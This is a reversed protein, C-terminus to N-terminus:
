VEAGHQRAFFVWRQWFIDDAPLTGRLQETISNLQERNPRPDDLVRKAEEVTSEGERSRAQKLEFVDSTLWEDVRGLRLFDVPNFAVERSDSLQLHYVRDSEDSFLAELSLMVLPSHTTVMIQPEIEKSLISSVDLIAPLIVRQWQPHLHAEMEDILVVIRQEPQKRSLNAAIRHETWAWVLLYGLTAIRRVGASEHIFPVDGYSHKLVPIERADGPVRVPDGPTLHEAEPPSLRELVKTFLEFKAHDPHHQWNVWDRLLGEIKGPLGDLVDDRQFVLIRTDERAHKSQRMPDWVAFSGDVRAYVILGPITPRGKPFPWDQNEWNYRITKEEATGGARVINFKIAPESKAADPRPSAVSGSWHGTLSWWACDLLFSKGLGNDGTIISLREGPEYLLRRVPGIGAIELLRLTGGTEPTADPPPPAGVARLLNRGQCLYHAGIARSAEPPLGTDFLERQEEDSIHYDRFFASLVDAAATQPPWDTERYLWVALWFASVSYTQDRALKAKLTPVYDTKWGWQDTNRKHLFAEALQGRTRTSQSGSMPYKQSLWSRRSSTKFPQYYYTSQPDPKYHLQLFEKENHNVPFSVMHGVPLRGQKCVLYTIGFFPHVRRLRTAAQQIAAETLYM